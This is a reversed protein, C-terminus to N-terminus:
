AAKRQPEDVRTLEVARPSRLHEVIAAEEPRCHVVTKWTWLHEPLHFDGNAVAPLMRHAVWHFFDHRNVLELRHV